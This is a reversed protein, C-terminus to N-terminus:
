VQPANLVTALGARFEGFVTALRSYMAHQSHDQDQASSRAEAELEEVIGPADEYVSRVVSLLVARDQTEVSPEAAPAAVAPADPTKIAAPEAAAVTDTNSSVAAAGRGASSDDRTSKNPQKAM